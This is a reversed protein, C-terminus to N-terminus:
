DLNGAVPAAVTTDAVVTLPTTAEQHIRTSAPEVTSTSAPGLQLPETASVQVAQTLPMANPNGPCMPPATATGFNCTVPSALSCAAVPPIKNYGALPMCCACLFTM